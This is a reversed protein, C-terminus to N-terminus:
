DFQEMPPKMKVFVGVLLNRKKLCEERLSYCQSDLIAMAAQQM